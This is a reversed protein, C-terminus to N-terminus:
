ALVGRIEAYIQHEPIFQTYSGSMESLAPAVPFIADDKNKGMHKRNEM